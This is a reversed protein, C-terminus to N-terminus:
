IRGSKNSQADRAKVARRMASKSAQRGTWLEFGLAAQEILMGLGTTARLGNKNASRVFATEQPVYVLDYIVADPPLPLGLPWPSADLNPAMGLPTANVILTIEPMIPEIKGIELSIPSVPSICMGNISNALETAQELRRSAVWVKWKTKCLGYVVARAAGGAGLVLAGGVSPSFVSSLDRLFGQMDTNDGILEEGDRLITNVAGISRAV